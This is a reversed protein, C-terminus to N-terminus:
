LPYPPVSGFLSRSFLILFLSHPTTPTYLTVHFHLNDLFLRHSMCLPQFESSGKPEELRWQCRSHALQQALAPFSPSSDSLARLMQTRQPSPYSSHATAGVQSPFAQTHTFHHQTGPLVLCFGVGEEHGQASCAWSELGWFRRSSLSTKM